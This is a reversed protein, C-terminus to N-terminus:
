HLSISLRDLGFKALDIYRSRCNRRVISDWNRLISLREIEFKAVDIYHSRCNRRVISTVLDIIEVFSRTWIQHNRRSRSLSISLKSSISSKSLSLIFNSISWCTRTLGFNPGSESQIKEFKQLGLGVSDTRIVGRSM